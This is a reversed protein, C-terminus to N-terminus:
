SAPCARESGHPRVTSTAPKLVDRRSLLLRHARRFAARRLAHLAQKLLPRTVSPRTTDDFPRTGGSRKPPWLLSVPRETHQRQDIGNSTSRPPFSMTAGISVLPRSCAVVLSVLLTASPVSTYYAGKFKADSLLTSSCARAIRLDHCRCHGLQRRRPKVLRAIPRIQIEHPGDALVELIDPPWSSGEDSRTSRAASAFRLTACPGSCRAPCRNESRRFM